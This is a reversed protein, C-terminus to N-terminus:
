HVGKGFLNQTGGSCLAEKSWKMVRECFFFVVGEEVQDEEMLSEVVVANARQDNVASTWSTDKEKVKWDETLTNM